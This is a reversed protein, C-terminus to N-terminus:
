QRMNMSNRNRLQQINVLVEKKREDMLPFINSKDEYFDPEEIETSDKRCSKHKRKGIKGHKSKQKIGQICTTGHEPCGLHL